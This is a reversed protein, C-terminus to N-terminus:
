GTFPRIGLLGMGNDLVHRVCEFLVLQSPTLQIDLEDEEDPLIYSLQDVIRFLYGLIASSELNKFAGLTVEPFQALVRLLDSYEDQEISTYDLSSLDASSSSTASTALKACLKSYWGQLRMGSNVELGVMKQLDFHSNTTRKVSLEQVLLSFIGMEDTAHPNAQQMVEFAEPDEARVAERMVAHCQDIIDGLLLGRGGTPTGGFGGLGLVKAFGVHQVRASLDNLGMLELATFIRHFHVDQDATVVYIMKDFSYKRDREILSAIDRLLYTTSGTRGRMIGMGLGKHGLKKFDVM